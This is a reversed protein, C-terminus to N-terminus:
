IAAEIAAGWIGDLQVVQHAQSIEAVVQLMVLGERIPKTFILAHAEQHGHVAVMDTMGCM